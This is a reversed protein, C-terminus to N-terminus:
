FLAMEGDTPSASLQREVLYRQVDDAIVRDPHYSAYAESGLYKWGELPDRRPAQGRLELSLVLTDGIASFPLDLVWCARGDTIAQWDAHVGGYAEPRGFISHGFTGCGACCALAALALVQHSRIM